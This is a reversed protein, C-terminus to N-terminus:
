DPILDLLKTVAARGSAKDGIQAVRGTGQYRWTGDRRTHRARPPDAITSRAAVDGALARTWCAACPRSYSAPLRPRRWRVAAPKTVEDQKAKNNAELKLQTKVALDSTRTM